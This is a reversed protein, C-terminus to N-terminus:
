LACRPTAINSAKLRLIFTFGQEAEGEVSINREEAEHDARERQGVLPLAM